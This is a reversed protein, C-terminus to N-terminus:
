QCLEEVVVIKFILKNVEAFQQGLERQEEPIEWGRWHYDYGKHHFTQKIQEKLSFTEGCLFYRNQCTLSRWIRGESIRLKWDDLM